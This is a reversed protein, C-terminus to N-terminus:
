EPGRPTTPAGMDLTDSVFTEGENLNFLSPGPDTPYWEYLVSKVDHYRVVAEYAPFKNRRGSASVIVTSDSFASLRWTVKFDISPAIIPIFPYNGSVSVAIESCCSGINKVHQEEIVVTKLKTYDGVYYLEGGIQAATAQHSYGPEVKFYDRQPDLHGIKNSDIPGRTLARIRSTGPEGAFERNDTGFAKRELKGAIPDPEFAWNIM